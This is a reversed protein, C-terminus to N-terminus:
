RSETSDPLDSDYHGARVRERVAEYHRSDPPPAEANLDDYASALETVRALLADHGEELAYLAHARRAQNELTKYRNGYRGHENSARLPQFVLLFTATAGSAASAIAFARAVVENSMQSPALGPIAAVILGLVLPLFQLRFNWQAYRESDTFHMAATFKAFEEIRKAELVLHSLSKSAPQSDIAM